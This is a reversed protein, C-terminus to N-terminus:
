EEEGPDRDYSFEPIPVPAERRQALGFESVLMWGALIAIFILDFRLALVLAVASTITFVVRAVREANNPTLKALLSVTLHGGDLPRIPLWNLLGWFFNVFVLLTLGRAALDNEFPGFLVGVLLGLGGLVFGAASGAASVLARRGPPLDGEPVGWRTLGGLGNLEVEVSAGFSRATLAHGFEHVLVSVFVILVWVAMLEWGALENLWGLVLAILLFSPHVTVPIDFLRFTPLGGHHRIRDGVAADSGVPVSVDMFLSRLAATAASM